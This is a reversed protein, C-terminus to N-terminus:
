SPIAPRMSIEACGLLYGFAENALWGGWDRSFGAGLLAITHM